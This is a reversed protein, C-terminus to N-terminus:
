YGTKKKEKNGGIIKRVFDGVPDPENYADVISKKQKQKVTAPAANPNDTQLPNRRGKMPDNDVGYPNKKDGAAM